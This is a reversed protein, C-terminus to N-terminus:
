NRKKIQENQLKELKDVNRKLRKSLRKKENLNDIKVDNNSNSNNNLKNNKELNVNKKLFDNFNKEKREGNFEDVEKANKYMKITPFGQIKPNFKLDNLGENEVKAVNVNDPVNLEFKNWEPKMDTCHKCYESYYLVVWDGKKLLNSLQEASEKDMVKIKM